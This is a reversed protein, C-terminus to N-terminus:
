IKWLGRKLPKHLTSFKHKLISQALKYNSAFKGTKSQKIKYKLAIELYLGGPAKYESPSKM